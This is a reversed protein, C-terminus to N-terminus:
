GAQVDLRALEEILPLEIVVARLDQVLIPADPVNIGVNLGLRTKEIRGALQVQNEVNVFSTSEARSFDVNMNGAVIRVRAVIRDEIPQRDHRPIDEARAFDSVAFPPEAHGLDKM